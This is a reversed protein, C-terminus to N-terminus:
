LQLDKEPVGLGIKCKWSCELDSKIGSKILSLYGWQRVPSNVLWVLSLVTASISSSKIFVM